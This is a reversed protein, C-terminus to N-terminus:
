NTFDSRLILRCQTAVILLSRLIMPKKQLFNDKKFARKCFLILIKLLRSITAVVYCYLDIENYKSLYLCVCVCVRVCACVCMYMCACACACACVCACKKERERERECVCVCVRVCVCVTVCM